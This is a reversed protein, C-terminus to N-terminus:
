AQKKAARLDLLLLLLCGLRLAFGAAACPLGFATNFKLPLLRLVLDAAVLAACVLRATRAHKEPLKKAALGFALAPILLAFCVAIESATVRYLASLGLMEWRPLASFGLDFLVSLASRQTLIPPYSPAVVVYLVPLLAAIQLIRVYLGGGTLYKRDNLGFKM